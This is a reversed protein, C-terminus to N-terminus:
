IKQDAASRTQQRRTRIPLLEALTQAHGVDAWAARSGVVYLNAKARSVMVNLINPTSCAWNRAGQQSAMPAGLVAIVAEAEKGQFTHITGVRNRIWDEADVGLTTLLADQTALLRRMEDVVVRFPSIIYVDPERIGARALESLLRVVLQGEAACWKDAADGDVDFWGSEGLVEGIDTRRLAGAAFVMQGDYAIRNSIQFMPDKCRRHVLLPLGVQRVGDGTKFEARHHSADDALTQVSAAPAAWQAPTVKFFNCVQHTLWAPLSSVPPIQLPDGVVIARRARMLAGVAARPTAQGAEDILLWGFSEAPVDGLVRDVSAFTTSLAQSFDVQLRNAIQEPSWGNVWKRDGRHPKNHGIFAAQRPGAIECGQADFIKGELRDQVYQRLRPNVVLKASKPRRAVLDSKWQAVSARYDLKGGRTAANRTLERSVTSPSRELRRAIERVGVDQARLLAIEERESFSLYRESVRKSMFLPMGGRHRLWRAGVPQSVGVAEAAKESTIGTAIQKWLQREVERRHSPAGPSRMARRGTLTKM